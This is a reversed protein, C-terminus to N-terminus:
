DPSTWGRWTDALKVWAGIPQPALRGEGAGPVLVGLVIRKSIGKVELGGENVGAPYPGDGGPHTLGFRTPGILEALDPLSSKQHGFCSWPLLPISSCPVPVPQSWSPLM